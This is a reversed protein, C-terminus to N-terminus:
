ACQSFDRNDIVRRIWDGIRHTNHYRAFSTPTTCAGAINHQVGFIISGDRSTAPSGSDGPCTGLNQARFGHPINLDDVKDVFGTSTRLFNTDTLAGTEMQTKGWGIARIQDNVAVQRNTNYGSVSAFVSNPWNSDIQFIAVDLTPHNCVRSVGRSNTWSSHRTGDANLRRWAPRIQARGVRVDVHKATMGWRSNVMFGSGLGASGSVAAVYGYRNLYDARSVVNGNLIKQFDAFDAVESKAQGIQTDFDFQEVLQKQNTDACEGCVSCYSALWPSVRCQDPYVLLIQELRRCTDSFDVLGILPTCLPLAVVALMMLSFNFIRSM